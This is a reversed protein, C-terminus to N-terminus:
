LLYVYFISVRVFRFSTRIKLHTSLKLLVDLCLFFPALAIALCYHTQWACM